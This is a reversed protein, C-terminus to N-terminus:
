EEKDNGEDDSYDKSYDFDDIFGDYLVEGGGYVCKVKLHVRDEVNRIIYVYEEDIKSTGAPYLYFGGISDKFHAVMTAALCGMGNFAEKFNQGNIGNIIPKGAFLEKLEKGHGDLYGDLQRYMVVVEKNDDDLVVTLSRTGM